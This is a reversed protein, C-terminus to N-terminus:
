TNEKIGHAAEIARAFPQVCDHFDNAQVRKWVQEIQKDTLPKRQPPHAYLDRVPVGAAETHNRHDNVEMGNHWKGDQFFQWAVPKQETRQPPATYLPTVVQEGNATAHFRTKYLNGSPSFWAVPEQEAYADRYLGLRENEDHLAQLATEQALREKLATIAENIHRSQTYQIKVIDLAFLALKMAEKDTMNAGKIEVTEVYRMIQHKRSGQMGWDGQRKALDEFAEDEDTM